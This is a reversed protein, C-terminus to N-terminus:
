WSWRTERGSACVCPPVRGLLSAPGRVSLLRLVWALVGVLVRAWLWMRMRMRV